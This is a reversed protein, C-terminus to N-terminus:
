SFCANFIAQVKADEASVDSGALFVKQTNDDYDVILKDDNDDTPTAPGDYFTAVTMTAM